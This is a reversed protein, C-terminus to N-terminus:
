SNINGRPQLNKANHHERARYSAKRRKRTSRRSTATPRHENHNVRTSTVITTLTRTADEGDRNAPGRANRDKERPRRSPARPPGCDARTARMRVPLCPAPLLPPTPPLPPIPVVRLSAISAPINNHYGRQLYRYIHTKAFLLCCCM